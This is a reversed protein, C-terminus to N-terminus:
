FPRSLAVYVTERGFLSSFDTMEAIDKAEISDKKWLNAAEHLGDAASRMVPALLESLGDLTAVFQRSLKDARANNSDNQADAWDLAQQYGSGFLEALKVGRSAEMPPCTSLYSIFNHAERASSELLLSNYQRNEGIMQKFWRWDVSFRPTTGLFELSPDVSDMLNEFPLAVNLYHPNVMCDHVWDTHSRTMGAITALHPSFAELLLETQQEFKQESKMLRLAFLKRIVNPFFGSLPVATIVMVGGEAVLESLHRVLALENPLSGLWNECIVVDYTTDPQFTEFSQEHIAPQVLQNGYRAFADRIDSVGKPNPEVLDLSLPSRSALYLSNQGSGPAVELIRAGKFAVAPLGLSRYVADRRQFHEDLSSMEYRVPSISHKKYFSLHGDVTPLPAQDSM